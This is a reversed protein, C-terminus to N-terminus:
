AKGSDCRHKYSRDHRQVTYTKEVSLVKMLIDAVQQNTSVYLLDIEGDIVKERVFHYHVEIHKTRAHVSPKKHASHQKSLGNTIISDHWSRLLDVTGCSMILASNM